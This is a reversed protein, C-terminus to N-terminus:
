ASPPGWDTGSVPLVPLVPAGTVDVGVDVDVVVVGAVPWYVFGWSYLGAGWVPVLVTPSGGAAEPPAVEGYGALMRPTGLSSFTSSSPSTM